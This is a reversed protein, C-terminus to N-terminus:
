VIEKLWHELTSKTPIKGQSLVKDNVILGPTIFIGLDAFDNVDTVKIINADLGSESVVEKCLTELKLCNACGSGVVKIELM